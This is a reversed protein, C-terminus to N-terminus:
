TDSCWIWNKMRGPRRALCSPPSLAPSTSYVLVVDGKKVGEQRLVGAFVEVEDLLQKYTIRQKTNTVPSDYLIAPADGNGALVHRDVCNYCTSIEGDPFWEWHDHSIGNKLEKTKHALAASPKKHWYLHEAQHGWFSEPDELSHSQALDQPHSM